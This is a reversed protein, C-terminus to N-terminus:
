CDVKWTLHFTFKQLKTMSLVKKSFLRFCLATRAGEIVEFFSLSTIETKTM